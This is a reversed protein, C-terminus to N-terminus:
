TAHQKLWALVADRVDAHQLLAVGHGPDGSELKKSRVAGPALNELNGAENTDSVFLVDHPSYRDKAQLEIFSPSDAPSLAVAGALSRQGKTAISMVAASAGISAGVVQIRKPDAEPRKRLFSIAGAVERALDVEDLGGRGDYALTTFGADHLYPVFPDWQDAGGNVEHVLIVAPARSGASTLVGNVSKGDSARFSVDSGGVPRPAAAERATSTNTTGSPAASHGGGCGAACVATALLTLFVLPRRM